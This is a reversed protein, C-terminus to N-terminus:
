ELDREDAEEITCQYPQALEMFLTLDTDDVLFYDLELGDEEELYFGTKHLKAEVVEAEPSLHGFHPRVLEDVYVKKVPIKGEARAFCDDVGQLPGSFVQDWPLEHFYGYVGARLKLQPREDLKGVVGYLKLGQEDRNDTPSFFAPMECHSHLDLVVGDLRLYKVGAGGGEQRPDLLRYQDDRWAIALYRENHWDALMVNLALDFLHAAILGHRLVIKAETDQLGRVKGEAVPVRAAMLSGETEVFVGNGAVVYDYFAGREGQLGEQHKVLYGVPRTM